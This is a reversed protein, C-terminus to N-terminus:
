EEPDVPVPPYCPDGCAVTSPMVAQMSTDIPNCAGSQCEQTITTRMCDLGCCKKRGTSGSEECNFLPDYIIITQYCTMGGCQVPGLSIDTGCKGPTTTKACQAAMATAHVSAWGAILLVVLAPVGLFSAILAATARHRQRM